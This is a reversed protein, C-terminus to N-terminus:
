APLTNVVLLAVADGADLGTLGDDVGVVGLAFTVVGLLGLFVPEKANNKLFTFYFHQFIIASQKHLLLSAIARKSFWNSGSGM